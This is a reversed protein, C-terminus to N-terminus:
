VIFGLVLSCGVEFAQLARAMEEALDATRLKLRQRQMQLSREHRLRETDAERELRRRM